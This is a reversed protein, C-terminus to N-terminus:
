DYKSYGLEDELEGDLAEQITQATLMKVFEHVDELTKVGFEDMLERLKPNNKRTM